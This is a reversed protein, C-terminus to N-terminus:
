TLMVFAVLLKPRLKNDNKDLLVYNASSFIKIKIGFIISIFIVDSQGIQISIVVFSRRSPSKVNSKKNRFRSEKPLFETCYM